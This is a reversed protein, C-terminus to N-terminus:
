SSDQGEYAGRHVCGEETGVSGWRAGEGELPVQVIRSYASFLFLIFPAKISQENTVSMRSDRVFFAVVCPTGLRDGMWTSATRLRAKSRHDSSFRHIRPAIATASLPLGIRGKEYWPTAYRASSPM